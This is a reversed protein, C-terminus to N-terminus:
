KNRYFQKFKRTFIYINKNEFKDIIFDIQFFTLLKNKIIEIPNKNELKYISLSNDENKGTFYVNNNNDIVLDMLLKQNYGFGKYVTIEVANLSETKLKYIIIIEKDFDDFKTLFYLNNNDYVLKSAMGRFGKVKKFTPNYQNTNNIMLKQNLNNNIIKNVNPITTSALKGIALLNLWKKM